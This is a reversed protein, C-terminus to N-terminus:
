PGQFMQTVLFGMMGARQGPFKYQSFAYAATCSFFIGALTTAVSVIVSNALQTWFFPADFIATFNDLSFQEPWPVLSTDFTQEPRFAMKVVALVPFLTVLVISILVIHVSWSFRDSRRTTM